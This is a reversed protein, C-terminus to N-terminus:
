VRSWIVPAALLCTMVFLSVLIADIMPLPLVSPTGFDVTQNLRLM